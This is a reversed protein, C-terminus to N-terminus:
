RAKRLTEAPFERVMIERGDGTVFRATLSDRGPLRTAELLLVCEHEGADFELGPLAVKNSELPNQALPSSVLEPVVYGALEAVPHMILRVRHVDGSVLVVGEIQNEGIWRLLGNREAMWTGWCDSKNRRVAENWVMGSALVKFPATSALLAEQLWSIQKAGLLTREGPALPSEGSNAFTRPDVMFVEMPGRRFRLYIGNDEAATPQAHYELFVERAYQANPIDGYQDNAAYDHDDWSTYNPIARLAARIGPNSYFEQYRLRRAQRKRSDIYPTDGLLVIAQPSRALLQGWIAQDPFRREEACSGFAITASGANDRISTVLPADGRPHVVKGGETSIWWDYATASTLGEVHFHLTLDGAKTAEDVVPALPDESGLAPQLHLVYRGPLSARAWVMISDTDTHGRFPGHTLSPTMTHPALLLLLWCLMLLVTWTPKNKWLCLLGALAIWSVWWLM